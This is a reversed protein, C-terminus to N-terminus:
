VGNGQPVGVPIKRDACDTKPLAHRRTKEAMDRGELGGPRGCRGTMVAANDGALLVPACGKGAYPCSRMVSRRM